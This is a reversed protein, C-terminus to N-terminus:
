AACETANAYLARIREPVPCDGPCFEEGDYSDQCEQHAYNRQFDGDYVGKWFYAREGVPIPGWCFVCRHPKRTNVYGSEFTHDSM